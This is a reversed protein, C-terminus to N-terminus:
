RSDGTAAHLPWFPDAVGLEHFAARVASEYGKGAPLCLHRLTGRCISRSCRLCFPANAPKGGGCAPCVVSAKSAALTERDLTM